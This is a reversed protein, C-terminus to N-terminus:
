TLDPQQHSNTELYPHEVNEELWRQIKLHWYLAIPDLWTVPGGLLLKERTGGTGMLHRRDTFWVLNLNEAEIQGGHLEWRKEPLIYEQEEWNGSPLEKYLAKYGSWGHGSASWNTLRASGIALAIAGTALFVSTM